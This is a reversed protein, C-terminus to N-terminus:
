DRTPIGKSDANNKELQGIRYSNLTVQSTLTAHMNNVSVILADMKQDMKEFRMDIKEFRKEIKKDMADFKANMENKTSLTPIVLSITKVDAKLAKFEDAHGHWVYSCIGVFLGFAALSFAEFSFFHKASVPTTGKVITDNAAPHTTDTM